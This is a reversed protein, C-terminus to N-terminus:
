SGNKTVTVKKGEPGNQKMMSLSAQKNLYVKVINDKHENFDGGFCKKKYVQWNRRWTKELTWTDLILKESYETASKKAHCMEKYTTM